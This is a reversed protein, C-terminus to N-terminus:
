AISRNLVRLLEEVCQGQRVIATRAKALDTPDAVMAQTAAKAAVYADRVVDVGQLDLPLTIAPMIALEVSSEGAQLPEDPAHRCWARYTGDSRKVAWGM